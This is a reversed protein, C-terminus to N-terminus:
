KVMENLIMLQEDFLNESLLTYIMEEKKERSIKLLKKLKDTNYKGMSELIYRIEEKEFIELKGVEKNSYFKIFEDLTQNDVEHFVEDNRAAESKFSTVFNSLQLYKENGLMGDSDPHLYM